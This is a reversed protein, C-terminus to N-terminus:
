GRMRHYRHLSGPFHEKGGPMVPMVSKIFQREVGAGIVMLTNFLRGLCATEEYDARAAILREWAEAIWTQINKM